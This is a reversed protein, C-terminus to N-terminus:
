DFVVGIFVIDPIWTIFLGLLAWGSLDTFAVCIILAISIIM